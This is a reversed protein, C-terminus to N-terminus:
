INSRNITYHNAQALETSDTKRRLKHGRINRSLNKKKMKVEIKLGPNM